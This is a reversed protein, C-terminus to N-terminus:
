WERCGSARCSGPRASHAKCKEVAKRQTYQKPNWISTYYRWERGQSDRAACVRYNPEEQHESDSVLSSVLGPTTVDAFAFSTASFALTLALSSLILKM